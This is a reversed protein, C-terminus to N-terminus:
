AGTWSPFPLRAQSTLLRIIMLLRFGTLKHLEALFRVINRGVQLLIMHQAETCEFTRPDGSCLGFIELCM